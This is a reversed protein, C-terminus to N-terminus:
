NGERSWHRHRAGCTEDPSSYLGQKIQARRARHHSPDPRLAGHDSKRVPRNCERPTSMPTRRRRCTASRVTRGSRDQNARWRELIQQAGAPSEFLSQNLREDRPRGIFFEAFANPQPHGPATRRWAIGHAQARRLIAMSTRETGNDSVCMLPWGSRAVVADLERAVRAGSLPTDAAFDLPWRRNPGQPLAM